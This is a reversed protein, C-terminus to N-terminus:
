KLVTVTGTHTHTKDSMTENFTIKWVYVGEKVPQGNYQANWGAGPDYSMFIIEGWRNFIEMRYQYVDIGSFFVPEFTENFNNGDATIANPIYFLIEDEVVLITKYTDECTGTADYATLTVTYSQAIEPYYHVPNEVVDNTGDGFNWYYNDALISKNDFKVEPESRPVEEPSYIFLAKPVPIVNILDVYYASDLCGTTTSIKFFVSIDEPEEGSNNFCITPDKKNSIQGDSFKWEYSPIGSVAITSDFFQICDGDCIQTLNSAIGAKFPTNIITPITINDTCGFDSTVILNVSYSGNGVYTHVPSINTSMTADGLDWDNQVIAGSAITSLNDYTAQFCETSVDFDAVPNPHVNLNLTMTDVCGSDSAVILEVPYIGFNNYSHLPATSTSSTNDGFDWDYTNINGSPISSNNVFGFQSQACTDTGTFSATPVANVYVPITISDVCGNNTQAFLEVNYNGFNAYLHNETSDLGFSNDNFDWSLSDIFGTPVTTLSSFQISDYLCQGTFSFDAIPKPHITVTQSVTDTCGANSEVVFDVTYTGPVPYSYTTDEQFATGGDGFHWYFHDITNGQGAIFSSGDFSIPEGECANNVTAMFAFPYVPAITTLTDGQCRGNLNYLATFTGAGYNSIDITDNVEGVLAVSDKYWQWTGGTTDITASLLYDQTCYGGSESININYTHSCEMYLNDIMIRHYSFSGNTSTNCSPGIAIGTINSPPQFNFSYSHWASDFPLIPAISDLVVWNPNSCATSGITSSLPINNCSTTGYLSLKLTDNWNWVWQNGWNNFLDMQLTYTKTPLLPTTLCTSAYNYNVWNVSNTWFILGLFGDSTATSCEPPVISNWWINYLGCTDCSNLYQVGWSGWNSSSATWDDVCNLNNNNVWIQPPCCSASNFDPNPIIDAAQANLGAGCQCEPDYLDILGDNDDDIANDCIEQAYIFPTVCLFLFLAKFKM